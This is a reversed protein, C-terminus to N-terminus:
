SCALVRADFDGLEARNLRALTAAGRKFTFNPRSCFVKRLVPSRLMKPVKGYAWVHGTSSSKDPPPILDAFSEAAGELADAIFDLGTDKTLTSDGRSFLADFIEVIECSTRYTRDKLPNFSHELPDFLIPRRWDPLTPVEDNIYLLGGKPLAINKDRGVYLKNFM